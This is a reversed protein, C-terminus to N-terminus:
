ANRHPSSVRPRSSAAVTESAVPTVYLVARGAVIDVDTQMLWTPWRESLADIAIRLRRLILRKADQNAQPSVSFDVLFPRRLDTTSLDIGGVVLRQRTTPPNSTLSALGVAALALGGGILSMKLLDDSASSRHSRKPVPM